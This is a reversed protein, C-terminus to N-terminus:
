RKIARKAVLIQYANYSKGSKKAEKKGLYVVKFPTGEPLNLIPALTKSAPLLWLEGNADSALITGYTGEDNVTSEIDPGESVFYGSFSENERFDHFPASIQQFQSDDDFDVEIAESTAPLRTAQVELAQGDGYERAPKNAAYDGSLESKEM